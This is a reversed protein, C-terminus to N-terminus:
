PKKELRNVFEMLIKTGVSDLKLKIPAFSPTENTFYSFGLVYTPFFGLEPTKECSVFGITKRKQDPFVFDLVPIVSTKPNEMVVSRGSPWFWGATGMPVKTFKWQETKESNFNRLLIGSQPIKEYPVPYAPKAYADNEGVRTLIGAFDPFLNSHIQNGILLVHGGAKKFTRMKECFANFDTGYYSNIRQAPVILLSVKEPSSIGNHNFTRIDLLEASKGNQRLTEAIQVAFIRDGGNFFGEQWRGTSDYLIQISASKEGELPLYPLCIGDHETPRSQVFDIMKQRYQPAYDEIKGSWIVEQESKAMELATEFIALTEQVAWGGVECFALALQKEAEERSRTFNKSDTGQSIKELIFANELVTKGLYAYEVGLWEIEFLHTFVEEPTSYTKIKKALKACHENWIKRTIEQKVVWGLDLELTPVLNLGERGLVYTAYHVLPEHNFSTQDAISHSLLSLLLLVQPSDNERIAKVLLEFALCRAEPLHFSHRNKIKREKLINLYNEGWREREPENFNDPYHSDILFQRMIEPNNQLMESWPAPIHQAVSRAVVDHGSGWAFLAAPLSIFIQFLLCFVLFKIKKM